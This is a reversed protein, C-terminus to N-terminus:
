KGREGADASYLLGIGRNAQKRSSAHSDVNISPCIVAAVWNAVTRRKAATELQGAKGFRSVRAYWGSAITVAESPARIRKAHDIKMSPNPPAIVSAHVVNRTHSVATVIKVISVHANSGGCIRFTRKKARLSKM